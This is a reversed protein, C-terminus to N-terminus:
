LDLVLEDSLARSCCPLFWQNQDREEASLYDDRHDPRGALLPTICAGCVGQECSYPVDIGAELLVSLASCDRGVSLTTASRALVLRFARASASPSAAGFRELHVNSAPWHADAACTQLAELFGSPGCLYLHSGDGPAQLLSDLAGSAPGAEGDVHVSVHSALPGDLLLDRFALDRESRVFYHVQFASGAALLSQAMALMPTIGIGAGALVHRTGAALPFLNRPLGVRLVSGPQAGAHLAASGGRSARDRLVGIVYRHRESPPNCLSYQRVIGPATEVDIHAGATFAPLAQHTPHALELRIIHDTEQTRQTVVLAQTPAAQSM